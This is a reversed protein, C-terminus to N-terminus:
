KKASTIKVPISKLSTPISKGSGTAPTSSLQTLSKVMAGNEYFDVGMNGANDYKLIYGDYNGTKFEALVTIGSNLILQGVGHNDGQKWAGIYTCNSYVMTGEGDELGDVFTGTYTNGNGTIRKGEGTLCNGSVCDASLYFSSSMQSSANLGMKDAFGYTKQNNFKGYVWEGASVAGSASVQIGKGNKYGDTFFGLFTSGDTGYFKILGNLNGNSFMGVYRDGSAFKYEGYGDLKGNKVYGKYTDGNTYIFENYGSVFTDNNYVAQGFAGDQFYFTAEGQRKGNKWQGAYAQGNDWTYVGYGDYNGDKFQGEYAQGNKFRLLGYGNNCDGWIVGTKTNMEAETPYLEMFLASYVYTKFDDYKIWFFGKNGWGESWSNMVEFAGGYKNDDYSVVTMAHLRHGGTNETVAASPDAKEEATPEWLEGSTYFSSPLAVGLVVPFNNAVLKKVDNLAIPHPADFFKKWSGKEDNNDYVVSEPWVKLEYFEKIKYYQAAYNFEDTITSGCGLLPLYFKKGGENKLTNMMMGSSKGASCNADFPLIKNYSYYPCFAKATILNRNSMGNAIAFQISLAEYSVAWGSCSPYIGQNKAFPAYPKLSFAAPIDSSFGFSSSKMPAGLKINPNITAGTGFQAKAQSLSMLAIGTLILSKVKKM